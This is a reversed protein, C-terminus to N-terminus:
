VQGLIGCRFSVFLILVDCVLALFTLRKGASLRLAAIFLSSLMAFVLCLYCLHNVFSAGGRFLLFLINKQGLLM